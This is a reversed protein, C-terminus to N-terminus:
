SRQSRAALLAAATLGALVMAASLLQGMTFPGLVFGLQADPERFFEAIIRVAGYLVLFLASVMGRQLRRQSLWRLLIFLVVGELLFEYIQSPHRPLPGGAPFVMAWPVDTVRGYLEGNIFNGLRGCGLGIPATPVVLDALALIAVGQRRCFLVGSLVAGALGGHFSMGGHWVALVELPRALYASPDYFLAYGLRAGALLGAILWTYFSSLLEPPFPRGAVAGGTRRLARAVLLYSAAFGVAYMLGYWRLAIPGVRLIEPRLHPYALM